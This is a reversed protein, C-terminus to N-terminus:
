RGTTCKHVLERDLADDFVEQSEIFLEFLLYSWLEVEVM